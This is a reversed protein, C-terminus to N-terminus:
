TQATKFIQTWSTGFVFHELDLSVSRFYSIPPITLLAPSHLGTRCDPPVWYLLAGQSDTVWGESNPLSRLHAHTQLSPRISGQPSSNSVQITNDSSGSAAHQADPSHALPETSEIRGIFPREVAAGTKSDWIRITSDYSGSIIRRGDPTCAVSKM